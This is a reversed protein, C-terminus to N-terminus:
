RLSVYYSCRIVPVPLYADPHGLSETFLKPEIGAGPKAGPSELMAKREGELLATYWFKRAFIFCFM